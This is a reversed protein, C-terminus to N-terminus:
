YDLRTMGELLAAGSNHAGLSGPRYNTDTSAVSVNYIYQENWVFNCFMRPYESHKMGTLWLTKANFILFNKVLLRTDAPMDTDNAYNVMYPILGGKFNSQDASQGENRLIGAVTNCRGGTMTFKVCTTARDIYKNDGTIHYLLRCAEIWTGQTYTLPPEGVAGNIRVRNGTKTMFDFMKRADDLYKQEGTKQHLKCAIIM